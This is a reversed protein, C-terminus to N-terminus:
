DPRRIRELRHGVTIVQDDAGCVVYCDLHERLHQALPGAYADIRRRAPKDLFYKTAGDHAKQSTGFSLLLDILMPPLGRQQSRVQAHRTLNM